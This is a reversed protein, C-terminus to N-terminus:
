DNDAGALYAALKRRAAPLSGANRAFIQLARKSREHEDRSANPGPSPPTSNAGHVRRWLLRDSLEQPVADLNGWPLAASLNADAAGAPCPCMAVISQTPVIATYPTPDPSTTFVDFMPLANADHMSLPAMGLILEATRIM